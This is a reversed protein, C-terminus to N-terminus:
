PATYLITHTAGRLPRIPQFLSPLGDCHRAYSCRTLPTHTSIPAPMNRLSGYCVNCKALPHLPQFPYIAIDLCYINRRFLFEFTELFRKVIKLIACYINSFNFVPSGPNGAPLFGKSMQKCEPIIGPLSLSSVAYATEPDSERIDREVAVNLKTKFMKVSRIRGTPNGVSSM